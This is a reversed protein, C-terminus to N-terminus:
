IEVVGYEFTIEPSTTDHNIKANLFLILFLKCITICFNSINTYGARKQFSVRTQQM